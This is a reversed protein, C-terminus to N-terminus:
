KLQKERQRMLRKLVDSADAPITPTSSAEARPADPAAVVSWDAGEPRRLQQAVRLALVQDGRVLDVGESGVRRVTFEGLTDGEAVTKRFAVEPSEFLAVRKGGFEVTGVLAIEDVRPPKAEPTARTLGVRNPNFINKETIIRFAEFSDAPSVAKTAASAPAASRAPDADRTRRGEAASAFVPLLLATIVVCASTKM